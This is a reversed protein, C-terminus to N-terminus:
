PEIPAKPDKMWEESSGDYLRVNKYGLSETLIYAWVTAMKGTDCYVIIKKSPDGGTAKAALAALEKRSKFTGDGNYAATSPLDVAGKIRGARAVFDLKKKGEYFDHDRTDVITEKGIAQMVDDKTAVLTKDARVKFTSPKPRAPETSVTKKQALWKEYEGDLIAINVVGAYKLTWAVRTISSQNAPINANGVVVVRSGSTIGASDIIDALDDAPPVQNKLPGETIAWANYFINISGPIHGARYDEVKRIDLVVVTPDNLHQQVWDVSVVPEITRAACICPAALLLM